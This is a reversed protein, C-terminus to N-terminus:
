YLVEILKCHQPRGEPKNDTDYTTIKKDNDLVCYLWDYNFRCDSCCEPIPEDFQIQVKYSM